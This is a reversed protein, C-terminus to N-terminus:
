TTRHVSLKGLLQMRKLTFKAPLTVTEVALGRLYSSMSFISVKQFDKSKADVTFFPETEGTEHIAFWFVVLPELAAGVLKQKLSPEDPTVMSTFVKDIEPKKFRKKTIDWEENWRRIKYNKTEEESCDILLSRGGISHVAWNKIEVQYLIKRKSFDRLIWGDLRPGKRKGTTCRADIVEAIGGKTQFYHIALALGLEEGIVGTVSSAHERNDDIKEDYFRLLERVNFRM